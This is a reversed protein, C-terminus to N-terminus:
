YEQLGLQREERGRESLLYSAGSTSYGQKGGEM